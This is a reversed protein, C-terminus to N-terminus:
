FMYILLAYKRSCEVRMSVYFVQSSFTEVVFADVIDELRWDRGLKQQNQHSHM